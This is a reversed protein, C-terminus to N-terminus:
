TAEAAAQGPCWRGARRLSKAAGVEGLGTEWARPLSAMEQLASPGQGEEEWRKGSRRWHGYCPGLGSPENFLGHCVHKEGGAGSRPHRSESHEGHAM